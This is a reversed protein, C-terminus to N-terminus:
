QRGGTVPGHGTPCRNDTCVYGMCGGMNLGCLSCKNPAYPFPVIPTSIPPHHDVPTKPYAWYDWPTNPYTWHDRQPSTPGRPPLSVKEDRRQSKLEDLIAELLEELRRNM